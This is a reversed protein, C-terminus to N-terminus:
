LVPPSSRTAQSILNGAPIGHAKRIAKTSEDAHNPLQSFVKSLCVVLQRCTIGFTVLHQM